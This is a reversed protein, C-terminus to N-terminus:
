ISGDMTETATPSEALVGFDGQDIANARGLVFPDLLARSVCIAAKSEVNACQNPKTDTTSFHHALRDFIRRM